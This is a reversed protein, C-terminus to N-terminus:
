GDFLGQVGVDVLDGLFDDDHEIKSYENNSLANKLSDSHQAMQNFSSNALNAM